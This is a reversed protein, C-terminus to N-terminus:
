TWGHRPLVLAVRAVGLKSGLLDGAINGADTVISELVEVLAADDHDTRLDSGTIDKDALDGRLALGVQGSLLAQQAGDETFFARSTRSVESLTGWPSLPM